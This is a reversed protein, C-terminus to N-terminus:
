LLKRDIMMKKLKNFIIDWDYDKAVRKSNDSIQKLLLPDRLENLKNVFSQVDHFYFVVGKKILENIFSNRVNVFVPKGSALYELIKLPCFLFGYEKFQPFDLNYAAVGIDSKKILDVVQSHSLHGLFRINDAGLNRAGEAYKHIEGGSGIITIDVEPENCLLLIDDLSHHLDVTGVYILNLKKNTKKIERRFEETNVGNPLVKIINEDVNRSVLANKLEKTQMLILDAKNLIRYNLFSFVGTPFLMNMEIIIRKKLLYSIFVMISDEVSGENRIYIIKNRILESLFSLLFLIRIFFCLIRFRTCKLIFPWETIFVGSSFYHIRKKNDSYSHFAVNFGDKAFSKAIQFTHNYVYNEKLPMQCWFMIRKMDRDLKKIM